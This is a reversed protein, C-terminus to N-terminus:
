KVTLTIAPNKMVTEWSVGGPLHDTFRTGGPTFVLPAGKGDVIFKIKDSLIPEGGEVLRLNDKDFFSLIATPLGDDGISIRRGLISITRDSRSLPIFKGTIDDDLAMKNNLWSLRSLRGADDVGNNEVVAGSVDLSINVTAAPLGSPKIVVKGTFLGKANKPIQVGFWLPLVETQPLNLAKTFPKGLYSIGGANFCTVDTLRQSGNGKLPLIQVNINKLDSRAAYVGVQFVYYEGPQATGKFMHMSAPSRQLWVEPVADLMRIPHERTEPFTFYASGPYRAVFAQLHAPEAVENMMTPPIGIDGTLETQRIADVDIAHKRVKEQGLAMTAMLPLLMYALIRKM